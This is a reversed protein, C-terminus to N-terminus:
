PISPAPNSAPACGEGSTRRATSSSAWRMARSTHTAIFAQTYAECSGHLSDAEPWEDVPEGGLQLELAPYQVGTRPQDDFYFSGALTKVNKLFSELAILGGGSQNESSFYAPQLRNAQGSEFDPLAFFFGLLGRAQHGIQGGARGAQSFDAIWRVPSEAVRKRIAGDTARTVGDDEIDGVVARVGGHLGEPHARLTLAFVGARLITAEVRLGVGACDAARAKPHLDGLCVECAVAGERDRSQFSLLKCLRARKCATKPCASGGALRKTRALM